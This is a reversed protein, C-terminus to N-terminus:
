QLLMVTGLVEKSTLLLRVLCLATIIFMTSYMYVICVHMNDTVKDEGISMNTNLFSPFGHMIICNERPVIQNNINLLNIALM